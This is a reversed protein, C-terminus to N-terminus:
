KKSVEMQKAMMAQDVYMQEKAKLEEYMFNIAQLEQDTPKQGHCNVYHMINNPWEVGVCNRSGLATGRGCVHCYAQGFYGSNPSLHEISFLRFMLHERDVEHEDGKWETNLESLALGNIRGKM